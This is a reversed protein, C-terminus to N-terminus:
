SVMMILILVTLMVLVNMVMLILMVVFTWLAVYMLVMVILLVRGDNSEFSVVALVVTIAMTMIIVDDDYVTSGM